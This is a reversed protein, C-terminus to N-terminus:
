WEFTLSSKGPGVCSADQIGGWRLELIGGCSSFFWTTGGGDCSSARERSPTELSTGRATKFNSVTSPLRSAVWLTGRCVPRGRSSCRPEPVMEDSGTRGERDRCSPQNWQKTQFPNGVKGDCRLILGTQRPLKLRIRTPLVVKRFIGIEGDARSLLGIGPCRKLRVGTSSTVVRLPVSVGTCQRYFCAPELYLEVPRRDGRFSRLLCACNWAEVWSSAQSEQGM